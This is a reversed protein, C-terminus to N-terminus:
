SIAEQRAPLLVEFVTGGEDRDSEYIEGGHAQVIRRCVALGLGLGTEKTSYFPEYLRHRDGAPLGRGNDAVRIRLRRQGATETATGEPNPLEAEAEVWIRGGTRVADLANLLLNLLVQRFQAADVAAILPAAPLRCDIHVDRREARGGLFEVTQRIIGALDVEKTELQAPRAFDLFAQLLNELRTIEEDLVAVDRADL